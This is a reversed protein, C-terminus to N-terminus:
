SVPNSYFLSVILVPKGRRVRLSRTCDIMEEAQLSRPARFLVRAPSVGATGALADAFVLAPERSLVNVCVGVVGGPRVSGGWGTKKVYVRAAILRLTKTKLPSEDSHGLASKLWIISSPSLRM